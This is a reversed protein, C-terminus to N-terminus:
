MFLLLGACVFTSNWLSNVLIKHRRAPSPLANCRRAPSPLANRRRAPSSLANRRRAPSPLANRRRTPSSLANHRRAPSPLANHRRSGPQQCLLPDQCLVVKHPHGHTGTVKSTVRTLAFCVSTILFRISTTTQFCPVMKRSLTSLVTRDRTILFKCETKPLIM